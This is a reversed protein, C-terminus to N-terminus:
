GLVGRPIEQADGNVEEKEEQGEQTEETEQAQRGEPLSRHL